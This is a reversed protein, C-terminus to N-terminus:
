DLNRENKKKCIRLNNSKRCCKIYFIIIYLETSCLSNCLEYHLILTKKGNTKIHDLDKKINEDEDKRSRDNGNMIKDYKRLLQRKRKKSVTVPILLKKWVDKTFAKIECRDHLMLNKLGQANDDHIGEKVKDYHHEKKCSKRRINYLNTVYFKVRVLQNENLFAILKKTCDSCPSNNIYVTICLWEPGGTGEGKKSNNMSMKSMM